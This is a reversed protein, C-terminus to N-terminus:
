VLLAQNGYTRQLLQGLVYASNSGDLVVGVPATFTSGTVEYTFGVGNAQCFNAAGTATNATTALCDIDLTGNASDAVFIDGFTDVAVDKPTFATALTAHSSTTYLQSVGIAKSATGPLFMPQPGVGVGQLNVTYVANTTTLPLLGSAGAGGCGSTPGLVCPFGPPAFSGRLLGAHVPQFYMEVSQSGGSAANTSASYPTGGFYNKNGSYPFSQLYTANAASLTTPSATPSLASAILYSPVAWTISIYPAATTGTVETGVNVKGFNYGGVQTQMINTASAYYYNGHVDFTGGYVANNTYM